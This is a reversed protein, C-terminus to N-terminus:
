IYCRRGQQCPRRVQRRRRGAGRAMSKKALNFGTIQQGDHQDYWVRSKPASGNPCAAFFNDPPKSDGNPDYTKWCWRLELVVAKLRRSAGRRCWVLCAAGDRPYVGEASEELGAEQAAERRERGRGADTVKSRWKM